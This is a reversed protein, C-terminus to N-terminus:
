PNSLRYLRLGADATNTVVNNSGLLVPAPSAASWVGTSLNTTSKLNFGAPNTPWLLLVSDPNARAITLWPPVPTILRTLTVDNGLRGVGGYSIQFLQGGIYLQAGAPLGSFNGTIADTGDNALITFQDGVSSAYGLTASLSVGKVNVAGNVNLQSYGTGPTTGNLEIKLTGSGGGSDFNSCTLVGPSDGPAVAASASAMVVPGVTGTGKLTGGSVLIGSTAQSGDVQLTGGSLDTTKYTNSGALRM